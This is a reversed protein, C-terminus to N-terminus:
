KMVQFSNMRAEHAYAFWLNLCFPTISITFLGFSHFFLSSILVYCMHFLYRSVTTWQVAVFNFCYSQTYPLTCRFYRFFSPSSFHSFAKRPTHWVSYPTNVRNHYAGHTLTFLPLSPSLISSSFPSFLKAMFGDFASVYHSYSNWRKKM